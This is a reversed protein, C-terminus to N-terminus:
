MTHNATLHILLDICSWVSYERDNNGRHFYIFFQHDEILRFAKGLTQVDVEVVGGTDWTNKMHLM